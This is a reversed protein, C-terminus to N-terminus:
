KTAAKARDPIIWQFDSLLLGKLCPSSPNLTSLSYPCSQNQYSAGTKGQDKSQPWGARNHCDNCNTAVPHIVLEIYPNMEVPQNGTTKDPIGYSDVLLYNKWPGVAQPLDPRDAAYVGDNPHDSWWVSQLAWTPIEKTNVHMAITVVYDGPEFPKNYAWYSAASLIAKDAEDFSAWDAQTVQHYYFSDLGYVPVNSATATPWATKDSRQVGYLFSINTKQGVQKGTPDIAVFDTWTEYGIYNPYNPGQYDHWVPLVGMMNAKVPWFMHKTVIATQPTPLEHEKKKYLDNLTSQKYLPQAPARIFNYNDNSLSETVIMVDGNNQFHAGDCINTNSSNNCLKTAKPYAKTVAAPIPYIPQNPTDIPIVTVGPTAGLAAPGLKGAGLSNNRAIISMSNSPAGNVAGNAALATSTQESFAYFTNPWTYWVPWTLGSAPQMIGAWLKWGHERVTKHDGAAVAAELAKITAPNMYDYGKPIPQYGPWTAADQGSAAAASLLLLGLGALISRKM